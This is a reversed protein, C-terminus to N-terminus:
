LRTYDIGKYCKKERIVRCPNGVAVVNSPINKTVLSNAGIVVNSGITVGSLVVSNMGIWVNDGIIIPPAKLHIDYDDEKHNASILGVGPGMRLNSGIQIGNRAQVYGNATMGPASNNGVKINKHFLIRSTFHVPWPVSGNFRFIKQPVFLYLIFLLPIGKAKPYFLRVWSFIFSLREVRNKLKEM